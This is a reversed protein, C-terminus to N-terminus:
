DKSRRTLIVPLSGRTTVFSDKLSDLWQRSDYGEPFRMDFAQLLSALMIRMQMLALPKGICNAPGASFAMFANPTLVTAVDDEGKLWREPLFADPDPYFYRPDRHYVYPPVYVATGEAIFMDPGLLHGGSGPTPARQLSTPVSPFLRLTENVVANLYELQALKAFDTPLGTGPTFTADVESRLRQYCAPHEILLYLASSLSFATTDSGAIIATVAYTVLVPLPTPDNDIKEEDNLHYFLDDHIAGDKLRRLVQRHAFEGVGKMQPPLFPLKMVAKFSWPIHGTLSSLRLGDQITQLLGDKDGDRLFEFPGGFVFDGMLDFSFFNLWKSMDEPVSADHTVASPCKAELMEVLQGVRRILIPEYKRISASTFGRNWVRRADAHIQKDRAGVLDGKAIRAATQGHNGSIRRGDWMSGKPMGDAGLISPLLEVDVISLVNPGLRVIPGYKEHMKKFYHHQRGRAAVLVLHFNSFRSIFPGPYKYLTHLPSVRYIAISCFLAAYFSCYGALIAFPTSTSSLPSMIVPLVPFLGLLVGLSLVDTPEYKKFWYHAVLALGGVSLLPSAM